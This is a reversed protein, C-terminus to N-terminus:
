NIDLWMTRLIQKGEFHWRPVKEYVKMSRFYDMKLNCADAVLKPDLATGTMDDRAWMVGGRCGLKYLQENLLKEGRKDEFSKGHGDAENFDDVWHKPYGRVNDVM